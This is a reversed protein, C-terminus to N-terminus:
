AKLRDIEDSLRGDTAIRELVRVREELKAIARDRADLESKMRDSLEGRKHGPPHVENGWSGELSYGHKARIWTTVIWGVTMCVIFVPWFNYWM